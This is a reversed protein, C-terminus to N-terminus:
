TIAVLNKLTFIAAKKLYLGTGYDSNYVAKVTIIRSVEDGAEDIALDDGTLVINVSSAPTVVVDERENIINGKTDTLDWVVTTPTVTEGDADTFAATVIYTSEEDAKISLKTAM